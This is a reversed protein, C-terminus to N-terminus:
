LCARFGRVKLGKGRNVKGPLTNSKASDKFGSGRMVCVRAQFARVVSQSDLVM